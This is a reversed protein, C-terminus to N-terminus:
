KADREMGRYVFDSQQNSSVQERIALIQSHQPSLHCVPDTATSDQTLLYAQCRCGGWDIEKRDCNQCLEPMWAAGRYANMAPSDYWIYELSHERANAFTLHPISMAAQCPLGDGNPAIILTRQGWGGMCPKPYKDYYDPIVYLIGMPIKRRQQAAKVVQEAHELQERTPLLAARNKLAWGYYQTNALEIRDAQLTEALEIIEEIRDLNQRHLVVNLTLPFGLEKVLRAAAIKQHFSPTGAIYDSEPPRSDQLSIQIHDLGLSHLTSAREKTLLTGATVLTTYLRLNAAAEVLIELDKRLLPEGGTFGLQLVGLQRAQQIIRLWDETALETRYNDSSWNLPNSCYPCQLPCRYTLEAVLSFPRPTM